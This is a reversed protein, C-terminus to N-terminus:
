KIGEQYQRTEKSTARRASIIRISEHRECHVVVLINNQQSRGLLLYLAELYSHQPDPILLAFDDYFVTMAEEFCIGHKHRNREAKQPNWEFGNIDIHSSIRM